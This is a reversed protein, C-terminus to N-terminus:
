FGEPQPGPALHVEGKFQSDTMWKEATERDVAWVGKRLGKPCSFLANEPKAGNKRWIKGNKNYENFASRVAAEFNKTIEEGRSTRARRVEDYVGHVGRTNRGEPYEWLARILDRVRTELNIDRKMAPAGTGWM